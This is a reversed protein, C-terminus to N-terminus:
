KNNVLKQTARYVLDYVNKGGSTAIEKIAFSMSRDTDLYEELKQLNDCFRDSSECCRLHIQCRIINSLQTTKRNFKTMPTENRFPKKEISVQCRRSQRLAPMKFDLGDNNVEANIWTDIYISALRIDM